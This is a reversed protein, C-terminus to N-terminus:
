FASDWPTHPPRGTEAVSARKDRQDFNSIDDISKVEPIIPAVLAGEKLEEWQFKSSVYWNHKRISDAGGKMVALRKTPKTRLLRAILDRAEPTFYKPFKFKGQIIKRYTGMPEDDFFPPFSSLLEYVLVGLCWWDVAKGHGQGTVIEPALYDPTGCLTYTKKPVVKAFGFDTVKIYGNASMVLNEPKLDRYIIDMGHMYDFAEVVCGTYFRTQDENFSRKKRLITFLEGGLCVDVLFYVRWDDKYTKRLNVLFRNNMTMMVHKENVIHGSQGLEEIQSKKIAKLAYSKKSFPDVVLTVKGFAGRGLLGITELNSLDCINSADDGLLNRENVPLLYEEANRELILQLPGLLRDFDEKSLQLLNCGQTGAVITAARLDDNLLALEGFFSGIRHVFNEDNADAIKKFGECSGSKVVYFNDPTDGQSFITEGAACIRETFAMDLLTLENTLLPQFLQVSRLFQFNQEDCQKQHNTVIYRYANRSMIFTKCPAAETVTVTANRPANYLLALEGFCCGAGITAVVKNDNKQTSVDCEGTEIVFVEDANKSGEEIIISGAEFDKPFFYKVINDLVDESLNEFLLSKSIAEKIFAHEEITLDTNEESVTATELNDAAVACRKVFIVEDTLEEFQQRNLVLVALPSTARITANRLGEGLLAQDGFYDNRNLQQLLSEEGNESVKIVNATGTQILFFEHGTEGQTMVDNGTEYERLTFKSALTCLKAKTLKSLLPIDTLTKVVEDIMAQEEKKQEELRAKSKKDVNPVPDEIDPVIRSIKEPNNPSSCLCGM